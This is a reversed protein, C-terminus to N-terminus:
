LVEDKREVEILAQSINEEEYSKVLVQLDLHMEHDVMEHSEERQELIFDHKHIHIFPTYSPLYYRKLKEHIKEIEMKSEQLACQTSKLSDQTTLLDQTLKFIEEGDNLSSGHLVDALEILDDRDYILQLLEGQITSLAKQMEEKSELSSQDELSAAICCQQAVSYHTDQVLHLDKQINNKDM